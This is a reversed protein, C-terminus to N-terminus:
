RPMQGAAATVAAMIVSFFLLVGLIALGFVVIRFIGALKFYFRLHDLAQILDAENGTFVAQQAASAANWLVIGLWIPAWCWLIGLGWTGLIGLGASIFSLVALFKMWGAADSLIVAVRKVLAASDSMGLSSNQALSQALPLSMNGPIRPESFGMLEPVMGLALYPGGNSARVMTQANARGEGVWQRLQQASVPGYERGDGGRMFYQTAGQSAFQSYDPAPPPTAAASATSNLEPVSGLATYAGGEAPRVQTQANARGDAVWQRLQAAEVPGYEKGDGGIMYYNAM